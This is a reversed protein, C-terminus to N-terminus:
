GALFRIRVTLGGGPTDELSLAGGMQEVISAVIALGLGSGNPDEPELRAFRQLVRPRDAPSIGPGEDIICLEPTGKEDRRILVDVRSGRPAYRLANDILNEILVQLGHADAQVSFKADTQLGLDVGQQDAQASFQAVCRGAVSALPVAAMDPRAMDPELRALQLLQRALHSVRDIGLELQVLAEQRDAEDRARRALQAHLKIAALPTNLEHAADAIFQRQGTLTREVKRMLGNFAQGVPAVESPLDDTELPMLNSAERSAIEARMGNLPILANIVATRLFLAFVLVIGAPLFFSPVLESFDDKRAVMAMAVQVYEQQEELTLVRWDEGRWSVVHLGPPQLPPGIDSLSSYSLQGDLLWIQSVFEGRDTGPVKDRRQADVTGHRAVSLAIQELGHDRTRNFGRWAVWYTVASAILATVMLATIQWRLLRSQISKANSTM